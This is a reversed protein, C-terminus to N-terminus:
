TKILIIMNKMIKVCFFNYGTFTAVFKETKKKNKVDKLKNLLNVILNRGNYNQGQYYYFKRSVSHIYKSSSPEWFM